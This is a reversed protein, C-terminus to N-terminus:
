AFTNSFPTLNLINKMAEVLIEYNVKCFYKVWDKRLEEIPLLDEQKYKKALSPIQLIRQFALSRPLPLLISCSIESVNGLGILTKAIELTKQVSKETEGPMGLVFCPFSKIGYHALIKSGRIIDKVTFGKNAKRLCTNDGSEIGLLIEYCNLKQLLKSIEEDIQDVRGYLFFSCKVDLPKSYVLEKLWNKNDLNNDSLSYILDIQYDKLKRVEGWVRKPTKIRSLTEIGCFVCGGTKERWLCGKQIFIGVAKNFPMFNLRKQHNLYYPKLDVLGYDLFPLRNLDLVRIPNRRIRENERYILNNIKSLSRGEIYEKLAMEGDGIIVADIFRRKKLVLESMASVHIGGVIVKMGKKKAYEAIELGNKYTLINPSIGVIDGEIRQLIDKQSLIDGDLIEIKVWPLEKKIYSGLTVLNLPPIVGSRSSGSYGEPIPANVLQLKM